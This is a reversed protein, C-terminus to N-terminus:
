GGVPTSNMQANSGSMDMTNNQMDVTVKGSMQMKGGAGAAMKSSEEAERGKIQSLAARVSDAGGGESLAGSERILREAKDGEEGAVGMRFFKAVGSETRWRKTFEEVTKVGHGQALKLLDGRAKFMRQLEQRREAAEPGTGIEKAVADQDGAGTLDKGVIDSVVEKNKEEDSRKEEALWKEHREIEDKGMPKKDKATMMQVMRATSDKVETDLGRIKAIAERQKDTLKSEDVTGALVKTLDLGARRALGSMETQKDRTGKALDFGGAGLNKMSATDGLLVDMWRQGRDIVAGAHRERERIIDDRGETGVAPIAADSELFARQNMVDGLQKEGVQAGTTIGAREAKVDIGGTASGIDLLRDRLEQNMGPVDKGALADELDKEAVGASRLASLQQRKVFAADVGAGAARLALIRKRLEPSGKKGTAVDQAAQRVAEPTADGSIINAAVLETKTQTQAAEGGARLASVRVRLAERRKQWDADSMGEPRKQEFQRTTTIVEEMIVALREKAGPGGEKSLDEPNIAALRERVEAPDVGGLAKKIATGIDGSPNQIEDMIRALPGAAGLGGLAKGMAAEAANEARLFAQREQVRPNNLDLARALGGYGKLAPDSAFRQMARGYGGAVTMNLQAQPFMREFEATAQEESMGEKRLQAVVATRTAAGLAANRTQDNVRTEVPMDTLAQAQANSATWAIDRAREGTVGAANLQNRLTERMSQAVVNRVEDGQRRRALDTINYRDVQEQNAANARLFSMATGRDVNSAAALQMFRAENMNLTEREGRENLFTDQHNRVAEAVNALPGKLGEGQTEAIRMIAGLRNAMPSAAANVRLQQDLLTLQDRGARGWGGAAGGGVQGYAAGFEAAGQASTIGFRADLGQMRALQAGQATLGELAQMGLGSTRAIVQTNRVTQELQAPTMTAMGGQTLKDLGEILEKMPANPKGMDGFIERMAAVAGSMEKLRNGIRNADFTRLMGEFQTPDLKRINELDAMDRGTTQSLRQVQEQRSMAGISTGMLGRTNMEEYLAGARGASMGKWGTLDADVGFFRKHMEAALIGASDGTIGTRGTAPDVGTIGARHLFTSMVTASGRTGHLADFTEPMAQALFPAMYALDGAMINASRQQEIGWPTGQMQSIGRFMQVYTERDQQSATAMATQRQQWYQKARWQDYLGQQPAFQAPMIGGHGFFHSIMPNMVMPALSGFMGGMGADTFNFDLRQRPELSGGFLGRNMALEDLLPQQYGTSM